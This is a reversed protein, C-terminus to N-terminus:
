PLLAGCAKCYCRGGSFENYEVNADCTACYKTPASGTVSAPASGSARLATVRGNKDRLQVGGSVTEMAEEDLRTVNEVNEMM